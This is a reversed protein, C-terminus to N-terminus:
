LNPSKEKMKSVRKITEKVQEYELMDKLEIKTLKLRTTTKNEKTKTKTKTVTSVLQTHWIPYSVTSFPKNFTFCRMDLFQFQAQIDHFSGRFILMTVMTM